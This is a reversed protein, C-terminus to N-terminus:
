FTTKLSFVVTRAIPYASYDFGPMLTTNRTSVEPDMGSYKTWTILNQGAVGFTLNKMYYRKIHKAPISYDLSLTKLRLYSGDELVRSSHYGIPGQGGARFINSEPNEPTWRNQYSAYQNFLTRVNGNGEFSLRNANYVDNGYSWQLFVNLSLNKYSFNNNFGGTHVPLGRGIITLDYANITGDNNLDRYKIDGPQVTTLGNDPVGTKLTYVGAPSKDFDDYKYTGEWVFGHFMGVPQDVESIYLPNVTYQSIFSPTSFLKDQSENLSLIKSSNFSINFDSNWAFKKTKINTTNLTIELGENRVSGVNKMASNFGSSLPLLANLLLDRTNKRYLDVVLDVKGKLFALDWGLDFSETTEWKLNENAPSTIYAGLMPTNNGWSYSAAFPQDLSIFRTYESVRNNGNLGYSFRLKSSYVFSLKEKFWDESHMNWAAAVAPFYGWRNNSSFKSSADARVTATFLYKSRYGYSLRGFGSFLSYETRTSSTSLPNGQDMGAMGLEENPIQQTSYGSGNYKSSQIEFGSMTTLKHVKNYTKNFTLVSNTSLTLREGASVAANIGKTNFYSILSGRPTKSNYFNESATTSNLVTGTTKLSLAPTIKYNFYGNGTVDAYKRINYANLSSSVPNFRADFSNEADEDIEEELLNVDNGSIPRYAWVASLLHSTVTTGEGERIVAGDTKRRSINVTFGASLKKSVTQDLSIRGQYRDYASNLLIGEQDYISGSIAYKTQQNGGRIAINHIRNITTRFVQDQWNIGKVNRFDELTKGKSALYYTNASAPNFDLQYKVFEYPGMTEITKQVHQVGVSNNFTIVPAGVKGKKTEILIVGNAGRAGYIATSSADKLITLSAIDDPNIASNNYDEVPFGDIVYLPSNDQTLSNGGRIVINMEEGPQGDTASIAVGAARGQLAQEFSGVPAKEMDKLNVQSISGTLDPKEVAGYGIVVVNSLGISQEKLTVNLVKRGSIRHIQTTYGLFTFVLVSGSEPVAIKYNGNADSVTGMQSGQLRVSVGPLGVGLSDTIRGTVTLQQLAIENKKRILVTKNEISYTIPQNRFVYDLVEKLPRQQFNLSVFSAEELDASAYLFDYGTQKKLEKFVEKLSVNETRISVDQALVSTAGAQLTVIFMLIFCLKMTLVLKAPVCCLMGLKQTTFNKYM